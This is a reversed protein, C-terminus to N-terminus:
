RPGDRCILRLPGGDGQRLADMGNRLLNLIVQEIEFVHVSVPPLGQDLDLSITIGANRAEPQILSVSTNIIDNIDNIDAPETRINGRRVFNGINKVIEAARRAQAAIRTM